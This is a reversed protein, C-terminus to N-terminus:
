EPLDRYRDAYDRNFIRRHLTAAGPLYYPYRYKMRPFWKKMERAAWRDVWREAKLLTLKKARVDRRNKM